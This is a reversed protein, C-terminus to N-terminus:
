KILSQMYKLYETLKEADKYYEVTICPIKYKNCLEVTEASTTFSPIEHSDRALLKGNKKIVSHECIHIQKCKETELLSQAYVEFSCNKNVSTVKAHAIDLLLHLETEELVRLLYELSTCIDYAGTPFYNNNEIGINRDSGVINKIEKISNKTNQVQEDLGIVTSAITYMGDSIKSKVCDRAAQFTLTSIEERPKVYDILFNKEEEKLGLNLDFDIHYHTTKAFNLTATRERAELADSHNEIMKAFSEDKFLHSIPTVLKM